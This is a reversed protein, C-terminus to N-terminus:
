VVNVWAGLHVPNERGALALQVATARATHVERRLGARWGGRPTAARVSDSTLWGVSFLSHPASLRHSYPTAALADDGWRTPFEAYPAGGAALAAHTASTVPHLICREFHREVRSNGGGGGGAFRKFMQDAPLGGTSFGIAGSGLMLWGALGSQAHILSVEQREAWIGLDFLRALASLDALPAGSDAPALRQVRVYLLDFHDLETLEDLVEDFVDPLQLFEYPLTLNLALREEGDLLPFLTDAEEVIEAFSAAVATAAVARGSTLLVNAGASRQMDLLQQAYGAAPGALKTLYPANDVHAKAPWDPNLVLRDGFAIYGEPDAVRVQAVPIDLRQAVTGSVPRPLRQVVGLAVSAGHVAHLEALVEPEREFYSYGRQCMFLPVQGSLAEDRSRVPPAVPAGNVQWDVITGAGSGRLVVARGDPLNAYEPPESEIEEDDDDGDDTEDLDDFEDDM